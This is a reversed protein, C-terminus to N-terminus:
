DLVCVTKGSITRASLEVLAQPVEELGITRALMADLKGRDLLDLLDTLMVSLDHRARQDGLAYAAGLAIEHVSPAIGFPAVTELDPRGAVTAIGGTHALLSLNTTASETGVTDLVADVGRGDTLKRVRAPIDETHFDIVQAAGLRKVHDTNHAAETALVRAGALAALQTAFGGVGGAAGTVLVTDQEGVHLRRVIAQYATLGASPLAAAQASSVTDPVPALVEARALTHEAFGGRDRIDGTYAVRQGVVLDEVQPGLAHIVGVVDLGLVAPWEWEPVGYAARQYDSPNLGCAQVKIRVQGPGPEPLPLDAPRLTDCTGPQDLVLARM